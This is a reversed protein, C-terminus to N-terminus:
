LLHTKAFDIKYYQDRTVLNVGDTVQDDREANTFVKFKTEDTM